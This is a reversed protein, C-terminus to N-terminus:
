RGRKWFLRLLGAGSFTLSSQIKVFCSIVPYCHCWSSSMCSMQVESCVCGRWCRMVWSQLSSVTGSAWSITLASFASCLLVSWNRYNERNDGLCDYNSLHHRSSPLCPRTPLYMIRATTTGPTTSRHIGLLGPAASFQRAADVLDAFVASESLQQTCLLFLVWSKEACYMVCPAASFLSVPCQLRFFHAVTSLENRYSWWM